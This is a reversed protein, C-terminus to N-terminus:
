VLIINETIQRKAMFGGQNESIIKPLLLKLRMVTIKTIIKYSANCLSIAGFKAFSKPNEEKPILAVFTSNTAGGMRFSKHVYQIMRILDYKITNWCVRYFHITFGDPGPAKDLDLEEIATQIEDQSVRQMIKENEEMYISTPINELM